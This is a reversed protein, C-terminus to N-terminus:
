EQRSSIGDVLERFLDFHYTGVCSFSDREIDAFYQDSGMGSYNIRYINLGTRTTAVTTKRAEITRTKM